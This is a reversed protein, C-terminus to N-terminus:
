RSRIPVIRGRAYFRYRRTGRLVVRYCGNRSAFPFPKRCTPLSTQPAPRTRQRRLAVRRIVVDPAAARRLTARVVPDGAPLRIPRRWEQGPRLKFPGLPQPAAGAVDLSVVYAADRLEQSRVGLEVRDAGAPILWLATTGTTDGPAGLPRVGLTAAGAVLLVAGAIAGIEAARVGRPYLRVARGAGRAHGAGAGALTVVTLTLGWAPATLSIGVVYLALATLVSTALSLGLALAVRDMARLGADPLLAATLAYGPLVGLLLAGALLRVASLGEPLVLVLVACLVALAGALVLDNRASRM